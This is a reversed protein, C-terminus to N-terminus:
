ASLIPKETYSSLTTFAIKKKKKKGDIDTSRKFDHGKLYDLKSVGLAPRM